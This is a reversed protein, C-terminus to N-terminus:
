RPSVWSFLYSYGYYSDSNKVAGSGLQHEALHTESGVMSMLVLLTVASLGHLAGAVRKFTYRPHALSYISFAAALFILVLAAIVLALEGRVFDSAGTGHHPSCGTVMNEYGSYFTLRYTACTRWLGSHSWLFLVEAPDRQGAEALAVALVDGSEPANARVKVGGERAVLITWYNSALAAIWASVGLVAVGTVFRLLRSEYLVAAVEKSVTATATM